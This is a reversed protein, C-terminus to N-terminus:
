FRTWGSVGKLPDFMCVSFLDRDEDRPDYDALMLGAYGLKSLQQIMPLALVQEATPNSTLVDNTLNDLKKIAVRHLSAQYFFSQGTSTLSWGHLATDRELAFWIPRDLLQPILTNSTHYGYM